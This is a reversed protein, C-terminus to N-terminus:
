QQDGGLSQQHHRRAWADYLQTGVEGLYSSDEILQIWPRPIAAESNYAGSIAGAICAVSDSDGEINAATVVTARYEDPSRLFCYLALAVAEEAVWGQGLARCPDQPDGCRALMQVQEIRADFKACEGGVLGLLAAPMGDPDSRDLALSVLYATAVGGALACPHGHTILSSDRAM